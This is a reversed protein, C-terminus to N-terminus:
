FLNHMIITTDVIISMKKLCQRWLSERLASPGMGGQKKTTIAKVGINTKLGTPSMENHGREKNTETIRPLGLWGPQGERVGLRKGQLEQLNQM